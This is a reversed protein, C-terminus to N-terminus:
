ASTVVILSSTISPAVGCSFWRRRLPLRRRRSPTKLPKPPCRPGRYRLSANTPNNKNHPGAKAKTSKAGGLKVQRHVRMRGPAPPMALTLKSLMPLAEDLM